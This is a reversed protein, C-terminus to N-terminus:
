LVTYMRYDIHDQSLENHTVVVLEYGELLLRECLCSGIFGAGGTVLARKKVALTRAGGSAGTSFVPTM